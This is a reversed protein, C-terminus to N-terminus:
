NRALPNIPRTVLDADIGHWRSRDMQSPWSRRDLLGLLEASIRLVLGGGRDRSTLPTGVDFRVVDIGGGPVGLRLGGGVSARWESDIGFPVAGAWMRGVDTFVAFGVDAFGTSLAPVHMREEITVLLRRAGPFSSYPYGRLGERGGLTLQFPRDMHAGSSLALRGVLSLQASQTWYSMGEVELMVDRWQPSGGASGRGVRRGQAAAQLHGYVVGGGAGLEGQGRFLWDDRGASVAPAATLSLEGGLLVDQAARLADLGTRRVFSARRVGVTVNVRNTSWPAMQDALAIIVSADAQTPEGFNDDQVVLVGQAGAPFAMVERSFGAGVVLRTGDFRGFRRQYTADYAEADFRVYAQTFGQAPDAAYSFYDDRRHFTQRAANSGIEGAYPRLLSQTFTNGARTSGGHVTADVRSGFLNPQRVLFGRRERERFVTRFLSVQAGTGLVNKVSGSIGTLSIGSDFSLALGGSVAWADQTRVHIRRSGSALPEATVAAASIYSLSRLSRESEALLVPDFCSQEDFMLEWRITSELTRVHVSNMTRFWWGLRAGDAVADGSFPESRDIVIEGVL